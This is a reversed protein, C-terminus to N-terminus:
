FCRGEHPVVQNRSSVLGPGHRDLSESDMIIPGQRDMSEIDM